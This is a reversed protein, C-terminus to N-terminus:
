RLINSQDDPNLRLFSSTIVKFSKGTPCLARTV